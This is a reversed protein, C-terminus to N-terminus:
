KLTEKQERKVIPNGWFYGIFSNMLIAGAIAPIIFKLFDAIM